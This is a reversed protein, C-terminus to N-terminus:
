GVQTASTFVERVNARQQKCKTLTAHLTDIRKKVTEAEDQNLSQTERDLLEQDVVEGESYCYVDSCGSHAYSTKEEM